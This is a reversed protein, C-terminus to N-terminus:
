LLEGNMNYKIKNFVAIGPHKFEISDMTIEHMMWVGDENMEVPQPNDQEGQFNYGHLLDSDKPGDGYTENVSVKALNQPVGKTVLFAVADTKTKIM